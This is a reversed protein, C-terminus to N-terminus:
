MGDPAIAIILNWGAVCSALDASQGDVVEITSRHHSNLIQRLAAARPVGIDELQYVEAGAVVDALTVRGSVVLRLRGVGAAVLERAAVAGWPEDGAVLIRAGAIAPAETGHGARFVRFSAARQRDVVFQEERVRSRTSATSEGLPLQEAAASGIGPSDGSELIVVGLRQLLDLVDFLLGAEQLQTAELLAELTPDLDALDVITTVVERLQSGSLSVAGFASYILVGDGTPLVGGEVNRYIRM